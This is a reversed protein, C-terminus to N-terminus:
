PARVFGLLLPRPVSPVELVMRRGDVCYPVTQEGVEIATPRQVFLDDFSEGGVGGRACTCRDGRPACPFGGELPTIDLCDGHTSCRRPVDSVERLRGRLELRARTGQVELSGTAALDIVPRPLECADTPAEDAPRLCSTAVYWHGDLLGGCPQQRTMSACTLDMLPPPGGCGALVGAMVLWARRRRVLWAGVLLWAMAGGTASCGLLPRTANAKAARVFAHDCYGNDFSCGPELTLWSDVVRDAGALGESLLGDLLELSAVKAAHAPALGDAECEDIGSSHRLGDRPEDYRTSMADVFNMVHQVRRFDRTRLMHAFSDQLAHLAEGLHFPGRLVEVEVPGYFDLTLRVTLRDDLHELAERVKGKIHARTAELAAVDGAPGDDDPARLAHARQDAPDLHIDRTTSLEFLSHSRTDPARVGLLISVIIARKTEDYAELKFESSFADSLKTWSAGRPLEIASFRLDTLYLSYLSATLQEHCGSSFGTGVSFARAELAGVLLVLGLARRM